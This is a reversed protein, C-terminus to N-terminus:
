PKLSLWVRWNFAFGEFLVRLSCVSFSFASLAIRVWARVPFIPNLANRWLILTGVTRLGRHGQSVPAIVTRCTRRAQGLQLSRLSSYIRGKPVVSRLLMRFEDFPHVATTM